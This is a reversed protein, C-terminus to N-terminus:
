EEVVMNRSPIEARARVAGEVRVNAKHCDDGVARTRSSQMHKVMGRTIPHVDFSWCRWWAAGNHKAAFAKGKGRAVGNQGAHVFDGDAAAIPVASCQLTESTVIREEILAFHWECGERSCACRWRLRCADDM